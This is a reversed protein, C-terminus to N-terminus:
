LSSRKHDVAVSHALPSEGRRYLERQRAAYEVGYVATLYPVLFKDFAPLSWVLADYEEGDYTKSTGDRRQVIVKIVDKPNQPPTEQSTRFPGFAAYSSDTRTAVSEAVRQAETSSEFVGAVPHPFDRNAVVYKLRGDRYGDVAEALRKLLSAPVPVTDQLSSTTVEPAPQIKTGAQPTCAALGVLLPLIVFQSRM